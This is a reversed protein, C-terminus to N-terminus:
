RVLRVPLDGPDLAINPPLHRGELWIIRQRDITEFLTQSARGLKALSSVDVVRQREKKGTLGGSTSWIQLPVGLSRLYARVTKLEFQSMDRGEADGGLLLVVARRRNRQAALLGAAAVADAYRNGDPATQPQRVYTLLWLLGGDDPTFDASLPFVELDYGSREQRNPSPWLFRFKTEAPLPFRTRVSDRDSLRGRRARRWLSEQDRRHLRNLDGRAGEDRVVIIEAPGREIAVAKLPTAERSFRGSLDALALSREKGHLEVPVATLETDVSDVYTGAFTADVVSSVNNSFDIEARFHHLQDAAFDPLAIRSPDTVELPRGDFTAAVSPPESDVVSEWSLRAVVGKGDKGGELAVTAEASSRPMNIWQEARDIEQGDENYAIAVLSHPELDQGFDCTTSWIGGELTRIPNGDLILEVTAVSDGVLIEVPQPGVILGLLLTAFAIV